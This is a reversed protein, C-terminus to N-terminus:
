VELSPNFSNPGPTEGAPCLPGRGLPGGVPGLGATYPHVERSYPGIRGPRGLTPSLGPFPPSTPAPAPDPLRRIRYRSGSMPSSGVLLLVYGM